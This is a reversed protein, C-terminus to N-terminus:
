VRVLEMAVRSTMGFPRHVFLANRRQMRQERPSDECPSCTTACHRVGVVLPCFLFDPNRLFCKELAHTRSKPTSDNCIAEFMWGDWVFIKSPPVFSSIRIKSANKLPTLVRNPSRITSFETTSFGSKMKQEEKWFRRKPFM